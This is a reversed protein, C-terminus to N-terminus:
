VARGGRLIASHNERRESSGIDEGPMEVIGIPDDEVATVIEGGGLAAAGVVRLRM